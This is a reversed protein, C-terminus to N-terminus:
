ARREGAFLLNMTFFFSTFSRGQKRASWYVSSPSVWGLRVHLATQAGDMPVFHEVFLEAAVIQARATGSAPKLFHQM